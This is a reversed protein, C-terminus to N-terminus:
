LLPAMQLLRRCGARLRIFRHELDEPSREFYDSDVKKVNYTTVDGAVCSSSDSGTVARFTTSGTIGDM